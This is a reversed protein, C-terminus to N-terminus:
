ANKEQHCLRTLNTKALVDKEQKEHFEEIQAPTFYNSWDNKTGKRFFGNDRPNQRSKSAEDAYNVLTNTKMNAFSSLEVVSQLEEPTRELSLFSAISKISALPDALMEDFSLFLINEEDKHEYWGTIHDSWKGYEVNGNVFLNFWHDWDGFYDFTKWLRSHHFMSVAVDRGGRAVYIFRAKTSKPTFKHASHLKFARPAPVTDMVELGTEELWPVANTLLKEGQEKRLLLHVIQQTWTTGSKPYTVIFVDDDHPVLDVVDQLNKDTMFPPYTQGNWTRHKYFVEKKTTPSANESGSSAM